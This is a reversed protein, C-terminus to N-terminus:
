SVPSYTTPRTHLHSTPVPPISGGVEETDLFREGVSSRAQTLARYPPMEYWRASRTDLRSTEKYRAGGTAVTWGHRTLPEKRREEEDHEPQEEVLEEEEKRREEPRQRPGRDQGEGEVGQGRPQDPQEAARARDRGRDQHEQDEDQGDDRRDEEARQQDALRGPGVVPDLLQDLAALQVVQDVLQLGGPRSEQEVAEGRGHDVGQVEVEGLESSPAM